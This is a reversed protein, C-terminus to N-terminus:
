PCPNMARCRYFAPSPNTVTISFLGTGTAATNTSGPVVQWTSLSAAPIASSVLYYQAQPTGVISLTFSGDMNPTISLFTNTSSCTSAANVVQSLNNTVGNFNSDGTYWALMPTTGQPLTSISASAVGGSLANTSWAVGNTAFIVNGTPTGAAPAVASITATFTVNAGVTSPNLSSTFNDQTSGKTINATTTPSTVSYDGAQAGGLTLGTITVTKSNAVNPDSFNGVANNTVLNVTDGTYPKGDATTGSGPAEAAQLAANTVYIFAATTANYVKAAATIGTVTLPKPTISGTTNTSTTSLTYNDALSGALTMGTVSVPKGNGVDKSDTFTATYGSAIHLYNSDALLMGSLAVIPATTTGDYVKTITLTPNLTVPTTTVSV